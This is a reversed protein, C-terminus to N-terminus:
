PASTILSSGYSSSRSSRRCVARRRRTTAATKESGTKVMDMNPNAWNWPQCHHAPASDSGTTVHHAHGNWLDAATLARCPDALMSVSIETPTIAACNHLMHATSHPPASSAGCAMAPMVMDDEPSVACTYKSTPEVTVANM